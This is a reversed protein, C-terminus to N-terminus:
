SIQLVGPILNQYDTRGRVLQHFFSKLFKLRSIGKAHCTALLTHFTASVVAMKQSGYFLSNKREGSLPRMYREALTNDIDYRGDKRWATLQKWYTHMYNIAKEMLEGRPPHGEKRLHQLRSYIDGLIRTTRGNKRAAKIDDPELQLDRYTQELSYLEGILDLFFQAEPEGQDAAYKFKARAHAMCCLHDIDVLEKDIYLYVNYGDSQLAKIHHDGILRKLVKRGRSGDDYHYIVIREKRNVLCWTYKKKFRGEEEDKVRVWTEDVNVVADESLARDLLHEVLKSAPISAKYLWNGLTQRCVSMGEDILRQVERYIPTHLHYRDYTLYAMFEASAKTGPLRDIYEPEGDEPLYAEYLKGNFRFVITQYEHRLVKVIQEYSYVAGFKIFEAGPPMKSKSSMHTETLNASMKQYTLGQRYPRPIRDNKGKEGDQKGEPKMDKDAAAAIGGDEDNGDFGEKNEALDPEDAPSRSPNGKNDCDNDKDKIAGKRGSKQSTGVFKAKKLVKVIDNLDKITKLFGEREKNWQRERALWTELDLRQQRQNDLVADLKGTLSAIIGDKEANRANAQRVQEFLDLIVEKLENHSMADLFEAPVPPRPVGARERESQQEQLHRLEKDLAM